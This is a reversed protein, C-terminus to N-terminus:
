KIGVKINVLHKIYIGYQKNSSIFVSCIKFRFGLNVTPKLVYMFTLSM